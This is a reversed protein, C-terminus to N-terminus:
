IKRVVLFVFHRGVIEVEWVRHQRSNAVGVGFRNEGVDEDCVNFEVGVGHQDVRRSSISDMTVHGEGDVGGVVFLVADPPTANWTGVVGGAKGAWLSLDSLVLGAECFEDEPMIRIGNEVIEEDGYDWFDEVGCHVVGDSTKAVNRAQVKEVMDMIDLSMDCLFLQFLVYLVHAGLSLRGGGTFGEEDLNCITNCEYNFAFVLGGDEPPGVIDYRERDAEADRAPFPAV